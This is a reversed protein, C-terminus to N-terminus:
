LLLIKKIDLRIDQHIINILYLSIDKTIYEMFKPISGILYEINSMIEDITM